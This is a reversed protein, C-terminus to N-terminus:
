SLPLIIVSVVHTIPIRKLEEVGAVSHYKFKKIYKEVEIHTKPDLVLFMIQSKLPDFIAHKDSGSKRYFKIGGLPLLIFTYYTQFTTEVCM